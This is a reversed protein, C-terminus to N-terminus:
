VAPNTAAGRVRGRREAASLLWRVVLRHQVDIRRWVTRAVTNDLQVLTSFLLEDGDRMFLLQGALGFRSGAGLLVADPTRHVVPWGLVNRKSWPTGLKLGLALWGGVLQVRMRLPAGELVARAWQEGTDALRPQAQIAFADQYDIRQLTCLARAAGLESLERVQGPAPAPASLINTTTSASAEM